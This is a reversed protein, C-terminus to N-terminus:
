IRITATSVNTKAAAFYAGMVTITQALLFFFLFLDMVELIVDVAPSADCESVGFNELSLAPRSISPQSGPRTKHSGGCRSHPSLVM